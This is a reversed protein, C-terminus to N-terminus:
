KAQTNQVVNDEIDSVCEETDSSRSKPFGSCKLGIFSKINNTESLFTNEYFDSIGSNQSILYFTRQGESGRQGQKRKKLWMKNEM